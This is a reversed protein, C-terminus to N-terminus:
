REKLKIDEKEWLSVPFYFAYSAFPAEAYESYSLWPYTDLWKMQFTLNRDGTKPFNYAPSPRWASRLLNEKTKDDVYTKKVM